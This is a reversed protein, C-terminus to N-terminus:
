ILKEKEAEFQEDTLVGSDHLEGLKKLADIRDMETMGGGQASGQGAQVREPPAAQQGRQEEQGRARRRGAAYGVGGVMAARALPRRRAIPMTKRENRVVREPSGIWGCPRGGQMVRLPHFRGSARPRPEPPAVGTLRAALAGSPSAERLEEPSSYRSDDMEPKASAIEDLLESQGGEKRAEAYAKAMSFSERISGGRDATIV